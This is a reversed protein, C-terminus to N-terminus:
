KFEETERWEQLSLCFIIDETAPIASALDYFPTRQSFAVKKRAIDKGKLEVPTYVAFQIHRSASSHILNNMGISKAPAWRLFFQLFVLSV